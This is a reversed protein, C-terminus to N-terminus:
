QFREVEARVRRRGKDMAASQDLRTKRQGYGKTEAQHILPENYEIEFLAGLDMSGTEQGKMNYVKVNAM